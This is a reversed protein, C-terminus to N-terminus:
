GYLPVGRLSLGAALAIGSKRGLNPAKWGKTEVSFIDLPDLIEVPIKLQERLSNLIISYHATHGILYVKDVSKGRTKSAMYVLTKNIEQLLQNVEPRLVEAMMKNMEASEESVHTELLLNTALAKPMDLVQELREFLRDESFDVARDLMLRRGWIMSIFSAKKGFNALLVNPLEAPDATNQTSANVVLNRLASPGIDLAEVQLGASTLFDLYTIVQERPLLAVIAERKDSSKDAQRMLMYDVVMQDLEDGIRERLEAAISADDTQDDSATFSVTIIKILDAPLCSVVKKGKFPQSAFAQKILPKLKEPQQFLAERSGEFPISAIARVSTRGSERKMQVLNLLDYGVYLGIHCRGGQGPLLSEIPKSINKLSFSM